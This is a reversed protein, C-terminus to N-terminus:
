PTSRSRWWCSASWWRPACWARRLPGLARARARARGHPRAALRDRPRRGARRAHVLRPRVLRAAPHAQEGAGGAAGGPPGGSGAAPRRAGPRRRRGGRARPRPRADHRGAGTAARRGRPRGRDGARHPHRHREPRRGQRPPAPEVVEVSEYFRAAQEAFRMMLLAGISFNPALLVGVSPHEDLVAQLRTRAADDWGTTGVVVHVGREVCHLVNDLTSSPVSLEVVVDAGGLDGLDDGRGYRGM